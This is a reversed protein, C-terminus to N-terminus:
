CAYWNNKDGYFVVTTDASIGAAGMLAEFGAKDIFDRNVLDQLDTHWDVKVAGPIHGIEYLLIDEDSEVLRVSPDDLRGAVWETSVLVDPDSYGASPQSKSATM